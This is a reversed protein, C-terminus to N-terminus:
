PFVKPLQSLLEFFVKNSEASVVEKGPFSEFLWFFRDWVSAFAKKYQHNASQNPLEKAILEAVEKSFGSLSRQWDRLFDNQFLLDDIEGLIVAGVELIVIDQFYPLLRAEIGALKQRSLLYVGKKLQVAKNQRLIRALQRFGPDYSSKQKQIIQIWGSERPLVPEELIPYKKRLYQEGLSTLRFGTEKSHIEKEILRKKSLQFILARQGSDSLESFLLTLTQYNFTKPTNKKLFYLFLLLKRSNIKMDFSSM